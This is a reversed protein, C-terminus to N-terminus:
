LTCVPLLLDISLSLSTVFFSFISCLVYVVRLNLGARHCRPCAQIPRISGSSPDALGIIPLAPLELNDCDTCRVRLRLSEVALLKADPLTWLARNYRIGRHLRNITTYPPPLLDTPFNKERNEVMLVGNAFCANGAGPSAGPGSWTVYPAILHAPLLDLLVVRTCLGHSGCSLYPSNKGSFALRSDKLCIVMGPLLPAAVTSLLYVKISDETREDRLVLVVKETNNKQSSSQPYTGPGPAREEEKSVLVGLVLSVNRPVSGHIVAASAPAAASTTTQSTLSSAATTVSPGGVLLARVGCSLRRQLAAAIVDSDGDPPYNYGGIGGNPPYHSGDSDGNSSSHAVSAAPAFSRFMSFYEGSDSASSSAVPARNLTSLAAGFGVAMAMARDFASASASASSSSSGGGWQSFPSSSSPPAVSVDAANAVLVVRTEPEMPHPSQELISSCASVVAVPFYAAAATPTPQPLKTAAVIDLLSLLANL